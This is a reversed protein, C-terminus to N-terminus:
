TTQPTRTMQILREIVKHRMEGEAVPMQFLEGLALGQVALRVINATVPDIGDEEIRRQWDAARQRFPELYRPDQGAAALLATHLPAEDPKISELRARLYARTFAGPSAPEACLARAQNAECRTALREVIALTLARKSPFHYLLGGKSAGAEKAVADLTLNSVGDRVIVAEAADLLRERVQATDPAIM